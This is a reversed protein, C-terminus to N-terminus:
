SIKCEDPMIGNVVVPGRFLLMPKSDNRWKRSSPLTAIICETKLRPTFIKM